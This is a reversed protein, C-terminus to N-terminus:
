AEKPIIGWKRLREAKLKKFPEVLEAFDALAKPREYPYKQHHRVYFFPHPTIAKIKHKLARLIECEPKYDEVFRLEIGKQEETQEPYGLKRRGELWDGSIYLGHHRDEEIATIIYDRCAFALHGAPCEPCGKEYDRNTHCHACLKDLIGIFLEAMKDEYGIYDFPSHLGM